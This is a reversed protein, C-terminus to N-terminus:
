FVVHVRRWSEVAAARGCKSRQACYSTSEATEDRERQRQWHALGLTRALLRPRRERVGTMQQRPQRSDATQRRGNATQADTKKEEKEREQRSCADRGSSPQDNSPLSPWCLARLCFFFSLWDTSESDDVEVVARSVASCAGCSRASGGNLPACVAVDDTAPRQAQGEWEGEAVM